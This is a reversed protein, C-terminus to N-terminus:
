EYRLSKIPNALAARVTHYGVTLLALLLASLGAIIFIDVGINIRYAFNNLWQNGFFYGVPLSILFAIMVLKSFDMTLLVLLGPISAGNVKRIGIEKRRTETTYSSM